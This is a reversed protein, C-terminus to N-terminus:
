LLVLKPNAPLLYHLLSAIRTGKLDGLYVYTCHSVPSWQSIKYIYTCRRGYGFRLFSNTFADNGNEKPGLVVASISYRCTYWHVSKSRVVTITM